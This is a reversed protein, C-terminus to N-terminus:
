KRKAKKKKIELRDQRHLIDALESESHSGTKIIKHAQRSWKLAQQIDKTRHEYYKALEVCSSADDNNAAIEWFEIAEKWKGQRKLSYAYNRAAENRVDDPLDKDLCAQFFEESTEWHGLKSLTYGISYFDRADIKDDANERSLMHNIHLFIAALSVVDMENHYFVGKLPGADGTDQYDFYIQPVLWGPIEEDARKFDLIETEIDGLRRSELRLKWIRRATHLLDFHNFTDLSHPLRNMIFRSRLMPIDFAKGNYSVFTNFKELIDDFYNLFAIENHPQDMFIQIVKLDAQDFYALGVLFVFSGAGSSLSSTETDIFLMKEPIVTEHMEMFDPMSVHIDPITLQINGHLHGYPFRKELVFVRNGQIDLWTGEVVDEIPVLEEESALEIENAKEIKLGLSKLKDLLDSM